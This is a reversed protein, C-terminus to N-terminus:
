DNANRRRRQRGLETARYAKFEEYARDLAEYRGDRLLSLTLYQRLAGLPRPCEGPNELPRTLYDHLIRKGRSHRAFDKDLFAYWALVGVSDSRGRKRNEESTLWQYFTKMRFEEIDAGRGEVDEGDKWLEWFIHSYPFLADNNVKRASGEM